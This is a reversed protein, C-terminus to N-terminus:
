VQRMNRTQQEDLPAIGMMGLRLIAKYGEHDEEGDELDDWATDWATSLPTSVPTSTKEADHDPSPVVATPTPPSLPSPTSIPSPPRQQPRPPPPRMPPSPPPSRAPVNPYTDFTIPKRNLGKQPCWTSACKVCNLATDACWADTRPSSCDSTSSCFGLSPLYYWPQGPLVDPYNDRTLPEAAKVTRRPCWTAACKMCNVSSDRCWPDEHKIACDDTTACFGRSDVKYWPPPPPAPPSPPPSRAPANPYTDFTIPKKKLGGRPCWTSACKVCNLATDACWADSRPSACDSTSSCFGLSPLYYWPQGPLVDPYNDRNLPEAAGARKPCWTAACKMCNVVSDRCWPDEHRSSCDGTSACFGTSDSQYWPPPPPPSQPPPSPPPPPGVYNHRTIPPIGQIASCWWGGCGGVCQDVDARCWTTGQPGGSGCEDFSCYGKTLLPVEPDESSSADDDDDDDRSKPEWNPATKPNYDCSGTSSYTFMVDPESVIFMMHGDITFTMGEPMPGHVRRTEGTEDGDEDLKMVMKTPESLIYIGSDGARKYVSAFDRLRNSREADNFVKQSRGSYPDIAWIQVPDFEQSAFLLQNLPDWALGELGKNKDHRRTPICLSLSM